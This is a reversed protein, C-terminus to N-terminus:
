NKWEHSDGVLKQEEVIAVYDILNELKIKKDQLVKCVIIDVKDRQEQESLLKAAMLATNIELVKKTNRLIVEVKVNYRVMAIVVM